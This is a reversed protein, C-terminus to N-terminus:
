PLNLLIADAAFSLREVNHTLWNSLDESEDTANLLDIIGIL